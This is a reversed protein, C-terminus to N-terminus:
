KIEVVKYGLSEIDLVLKNDNIEIENGGLLDVAKTGQVNLEIHEGEEHFIGRNVVVIVKRGDYNREFAFTHNGTFLVRFDGEGFIEKNDNRMKGLVQYHALLEKDEMGWPYTKRNYPDSYGFVGVEDGYYLLPTGPM